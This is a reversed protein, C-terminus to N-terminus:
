GGQLNDRIDMTFLYITLFVETIFSETHKKKINYFM